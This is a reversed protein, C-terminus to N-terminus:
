RPPPEIEGQETSTQMLIPVCAAVFSSHALIVTQIAEGDGSEYCFVFNAPREMLAEAVTALAQDQAATFDKGVLGEM